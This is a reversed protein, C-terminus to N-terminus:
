VNKDKENEVEELASSVIEEVLEQPKIDLKAAREVIKDLLGGRLTIMPKEKPNMWPCSFCNVDCGRCSVSKQINCNQCLPQINEVSDSEVYRFLDENLRSRPVRHDPVLRLHSSDNGGVVGCVACVNGYTSLVRNWVEASIQSRPIRKPAVKISLLQYSSGVKVLDLFGEEGQLERLRRFVDLYDKSAGDRKRALNVAARVEDRSVVPGPLEEGEIWLAELIYRYIKKNAESKSVFDKSLRDLELARQAVKSEDSHAM